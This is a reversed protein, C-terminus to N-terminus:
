QGFLIQLSFYSFYKFSCEYKIKKYIHKLYSNNIIKVNKTFDFDALDNCSKKMLINFNIIKTGTM